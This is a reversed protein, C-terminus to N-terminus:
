EEETVGAKMSLENKLQETSIGRAQAELRMLRQNILQQLTRYKLRYMQQQLQSIQKGALDIVDQETIVESGVRAVAASEAALPLQLSLYILFILIGPKRRFSM